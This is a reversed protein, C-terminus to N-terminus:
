FNRRNKCVEKSSGYQAMPCHGFAVIVLGGSCRGLLVSYLVPDSLTLTNNTFMHSQSPHTHPTPHTQHPSHHTPHHLSGPPPSRLSRCCRRRRCRGRRGVLFGPLGEAGSRSRSTTCGGQFSVRIPELLM